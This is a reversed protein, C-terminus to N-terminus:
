NMTGRGDDVLGLRTQQFASQKNMTTLNINQSDWAKYGNIINGAVSTIAGAAAGIAAGIPTGGSVQAGTVAGGVISAAIGGIHELVSMTNNLDQEAQYNETLNYYKFAHILVSSKVLSKAQSYAEYFAVNKGLTAKEASSIPHIATQLIRQFSKDEETLKTSANQKKDGSRSWVELVLRRDDNGGM